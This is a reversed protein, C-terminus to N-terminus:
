CEVADSKIQKLKNPLSTLVSSFSIMEISLGPGFACCFIKKNENYDDSKIKNFIKELVFLITPSSMNGYDKLVNLSDEVEDKSLNLSEKVAQVIKVGGPHIAWYDPKNEVLFDTVVPYINEKISKVINKNLYMRFASSSIDWTMLDLTNPIYSSGIEDIKLIVTNESHKNDNGCVFTAAAGDSFLLNAIIDEDTISPSFHLSCLEVCIILICADPNAEAIYKAQKLAKIAAYCGLFNLALKETHQLGYKESVLFELGPAFLGTCSVTILHTIENPKITTKLFLKDIASSALPLVKKKYLETRKEVTQDFNGDTFLENEKGNFDPICSYRKQIKTKENLLTLKQLNPDNGKSILAKSYFEVLEESSVTYEPVATAIDIIYAM